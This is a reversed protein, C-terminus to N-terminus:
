LLRRPDFRTLLRSFLRIPDAKGLSPGVCVWSGAPATGILRVCGPAQASEM